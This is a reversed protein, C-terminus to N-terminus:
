IFGGVLSHPSKLCRYGYHMAFSESFSVM